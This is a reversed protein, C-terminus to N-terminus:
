LQLTWIYLIYFKEDVIWSLLCSIYIPTIAFYRTWEAFAEFIYQSPFSEGQAKWINKFNASKSFKTRNRLANEFFLFYLTSFFENM